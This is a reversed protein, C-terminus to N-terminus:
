GELALDTGCVELYSQATTQENKKLILHTSDWGEPFVGRGPSVGCM